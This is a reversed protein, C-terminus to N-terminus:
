NKEKYMIMNRKIMIAYKSVIEVNRSKLYIVLLLTKRNITFIEGM